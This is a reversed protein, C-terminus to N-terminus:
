FTFAFGIFPGSLEIETANPEGESTTAEFELVTHRYGAQLTFLSNFSFGASALLNLVGDSEGFSYDGRVALNWKGYRHLYRAGVFVDALNKDIDYRRTVSGDPTVLLTTEATIGRYGFLLHAGVDDGSLRYIGGLELVTLDLEANVDVPTELSGPLRITTRDSLSLFIYDLTVGWHRKAAEVRIMGAADTKDLLTPPDGGGGGDGPISQEVAIGPLWLYPSVLWEAADDAALAQTSGLLLLTTMGVLRGVIVPFAAVVRIRVPCAFGSDSIADVAPAVGRM